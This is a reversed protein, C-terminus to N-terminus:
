ANRKRDARWRQELWHKLNACERIVDDLEPVTRRLEAETVVGDELTDALVELAEGVEKVLKQTARLNNAGSSTSVTPLRFAVRGAQRELTDLLEYDNLEICLKPLLKAPFKRDGALWYMFSRYNPGLKEALKPASIRLKQTRTQVVRSLVGHFPEGVPYDMLVEGCIEEACCERTNVM